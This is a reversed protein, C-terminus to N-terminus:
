QEQMVLIEANINKYRSGQAQAADEILPVKFKKCIKKIKFINPSIIGGIHVIVVAGINKHIKKELDQPDM